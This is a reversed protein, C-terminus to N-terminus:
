NKCSLICTLIDNEWIMGGEVERQTWFNDRSKLISDLNTTVKRGLLLCREIEHSCDGDATIKSGGLIFDSVTKMTEGDIQWSSIPGSAMIKTKQINLKLGVKEGEEKVKMLLSKLEEKSEAMLTTDDAYRLNNINRGVIKIGAQAEALKATRMIYEAYLNFLCPSLICGQRVKGILFWDTIGHGTRVTAEQGAYLNRLLCTLHDPIRREKLIKGPINHGVCM